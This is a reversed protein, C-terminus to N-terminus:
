PRCVRPQSPSPARRTKHLVSYVQSSADWHAQTNVVLGSNVGALKETLSAGHCTLPHMVLVRRSCANCPPRRCPGGHAHLPTASDRNANTMLASSTRRRALGQHSTLPYPARAQRALQSSTGSAASCARNRGSMLCRSKSKTVSAWCRARACTTICLLASGSAQALRRRTGARYAFRALIHACQSWVGSAQAFCSVNESYPLRHLSRALLRHALFFREPNTNLDTHRLLGTQLLARMRKASELYSISHIDM